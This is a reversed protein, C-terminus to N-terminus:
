EGDELVGDVIRGPRKQRAMEIEQRRHTAARADMEKIWELLWAVHARKSRRALRAQEALWTNLEDSVSVSLRIM